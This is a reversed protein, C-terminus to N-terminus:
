PELPSGLRAATEGIWYRYRALPIVGSVFGCTPEGDTHASWSVIGVLARDREDFVPGGSDGNCVGFGAAEGLKQPDILSFQQSSPRDTAVLTVARLKGATKRDGQVGVGFGAVIFRDGVSPPVRRESFAVPTLNAVPAALKVLALDPADARPSFQPHAAVSAVDKVEPRRGEFTVLRYKGASPVCHAATLVLDPAIAVGTCLNRAGVIIVVHRAIAQDAFPAGGVIAAAPWTALALWAFALLAGCSCARM